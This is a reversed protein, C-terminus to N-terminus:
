KHGNFKRTAEIDNIYREVKEWGPFGGVIRDDVYIDASIKRSDSNYLRIRSPTNINVADFPIKNALLWNIADTLADGCRCTWITIHHGKEKLRRITAGAGFIEAGIRPFDSEVITGDFDIAIVLSM